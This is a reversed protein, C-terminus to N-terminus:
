VFFSFSSPLYSIMLLRIREKESVRKVTPGKDFLVSYWTRTRVRLAAPLESHSSIESAFVVSSANLSVAVRTSTTAAM